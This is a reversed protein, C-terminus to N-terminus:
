SSASAGRGAFDGAGGAIMAAAREAIMYTPANTNGSVVEPMISADVVRLGEIGRVRLQPDVVANEDLGMRCTGAPHYLTETMNRIYAILDEESQVGAGPLFEEGRYREMAPAQAIRRALRLGDLLIKLDSEAQLYNPDILPPDAPNDSRLRIWGRSEPRVLTPGITFGHGEVVRFGHDLFYAPAFHFQLDPRDLNPRTRVFGGGEGVNSTLPGRHGVLYRILNPLSAASALSVPQKSRWCSPVCPHDQLNAGVGPLDAVVSIGLRRLHDARGIGSLMLVQPSNVAGGALIVERQARAEEAKGDLVYRVGRTRTGDLILGTVLAGTRITLNPRPGTDHLFAQAASHRQGNRQTVRYIGFGDQEDGNFDSNRAFGSEVAADVFAKSIPNVLGLATVNLNHLTREFSERVGTWDWGTAGLEAWRDYDRRNGRIYIMANMSSSGGLMKGRPWFLRRNNLRRQEETYYAWDNPTKFLKNFAAPIRIEKARDPGGAELLLVKTGPNQSLRNALVCGASGAGVIVYDFM